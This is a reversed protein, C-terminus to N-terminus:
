LAAEAQVKIIKKKKCCNLEAAPDVFSLLM